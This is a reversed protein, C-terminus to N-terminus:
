SSIRAAAYQAFSSPRGTFSIWVRSNFKAVLKGRVGVKCRRFAPSFSPWSTAIFWSMAHPKMPGRKATPLFNLLPM